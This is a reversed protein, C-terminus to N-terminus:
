RQGDSERQAMTPVGCGTLPYYKTSGAPIWAPADLFGGLMACCHLRAMPGLADRWVCQETYGSRVITPKAPTNNILLTPLPRM